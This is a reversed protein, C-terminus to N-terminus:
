PKIEACQPAFPRDRNESSLCPYGAAVAMANAILWAAEYALDNPFTISFRHDVVLATGDDGDRYATLWPIMRGEIVVRYEEFPGVMFEVPKPTPFDTVNDSM